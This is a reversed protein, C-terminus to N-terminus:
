DGRFRGNRLTVPEGCVHLPKFGSSPPADVVRFWDAKNTADLALLSRPPAETVPTTACSDFARGLRVLFNLTFEDPTAQPQFLRLEPVKLSVCSISGVPPLPFRWLRGLQDARWLAGAAIAAAAAWTAARAVLPGHGQTARGLARAAIWFGLACLAARPALVFLFMRPLFLYRSAALSAAVPLVVALQGVSVIWLVLAYREPAPLRRRQRWWRLPYLLGTLLLAHGALELVGWGPPWLPAFANRVMAGRDAGAVFDLGIANAGGWGRCVSGSWYHVDLAILLVAAIGLVWTAKRGLPGSPLVWRHVAWFAAFALTAQGCGPTASMASLLGAGALLAVRSRLRLGERVALEATALTLVVTAFLWTVYARNQEAYHHFGPDAVLVAFGALAAKLGLRHQLGFILVVLALTAAALSVARYTLRMSLGLPEVSRVVVRELASFLPAPSCGFSGVVLMGGLPRDCVQAIEFGEDVWFEKRLATDALMLLVASCLAIVVVVLLLERRLLGSM